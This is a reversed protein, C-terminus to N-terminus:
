ADPFFLQGFVLAAATTYVFSDYWEVVTGVLSATVAKKVSTREGTHEGGLKEM